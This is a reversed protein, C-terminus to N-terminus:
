TWGHTRSPDAGCDIAREVTEGNESTELTMVWGHPQGYTDIKFRSRMTQPLNSIPHSPQDTPRATLNDPAVYEAPVFSHTWLMQYYCGHEARYAEQQAVVYPWLQAVAADITDTAESM